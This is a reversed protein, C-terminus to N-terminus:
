NIKRNKWNHWKLLEPEPNKERAFYVACRFVYLVCRDIKEGRLDNLREYISEPKESKLESVSRYGLDWLDESISKGVGPIRQIEKLIDKKPKM